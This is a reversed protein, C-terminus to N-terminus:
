SPSVAVPRVPEGSKLPRCHALNDAYIELSSPHDATLVLGCRQPQLPRRQFRGRRICLPKEAQRIVVPLLPLPSRDLHAAKETTPTAGTRADVGEGLGYAGSPPKRRTNLVPTESHVDALYRRDKTTAPNCSNPNGSKITATRRPAYRPAGMGFDLTLGYQFDQLRPFSNRATSASVGGGFTTGILPCLGKIASATIRKASALLDYQTAFHPPQGSVSPYTGGAYTM